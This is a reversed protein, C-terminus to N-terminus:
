IDLEPILDRLEKPLARLDDAEFKLNLFTCAVRAVIKAQAVDRQVKLPERDPRKSIWLKHLSFARPDFTAVTVPLGDEAIARVHFRPVNLLWQLGQLPASNLDHEVETLQERKKSFFSVTKPDFSILRFDRAISRETIM